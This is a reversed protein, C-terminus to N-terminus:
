VALAATCAPRVPVEVAMLVIAACIGDKRVRSPAKRTNSAALITKPLTAAEILLRALVDLGEDLDALIGLPNPDSGIEELAGRQRGLLLAEREIPVRLREGLRPFGGLDPDALALVPAVSCRDVPGQGLINSGPVRRCDVLSAEDTFPMLSDNPTSPLM